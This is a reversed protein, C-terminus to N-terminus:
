AREIALIVRRNMEPWITFDLSAPVHFTHLYNCVHTILGCGTSVVVWGVCTLLGGVEVLGRRFGCPAKSPWVPPVKCM